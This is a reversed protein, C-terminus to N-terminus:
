PKAVGIVGQGIRAGANGTPQGGDDVQAHVIVAYGIIPNHHGDISINHVSVEYHANGKEDATLNGLDGAHRGPRSPLAHAHGFPNYHGGAGKGNSLRIDGFEHIHIGHQQGPTLGTVNVFVKVSGASQEFSATGKCSNGATAQIVAVARTAGSYAKKHHRLFHSACGSTLSLSSVVVMAVLLHVTRKM